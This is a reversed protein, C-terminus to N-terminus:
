INLHYLILHWNKLVDMLIFLNKYLYTSLASLESITSMQTGHLEIFYYIELIFTLNMKLLAVQLVCSPTITVQMVFINVTGNGLIM